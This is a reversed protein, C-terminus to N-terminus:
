FRIGQEACWQLSRRMGEELAVTPAYGLERCARDIRCAITKGLESLVHLRQEYLGFAQVARDAWTAASGVFAPLRIRRKAVRVGFESAMLREVTDVIRNMAYPERDAIWYAGGAAAESRACLLLGQCLNDVYVMSRLNEGDGVIPVRGQAIMRFFETQRAPQPPGYFWPPRVVVTELAGRAAFEGVVAEVARKSRGYAMYPHYPSCEDFRHERSPNTGFPSNSSVVVARRVGANEAAELLRRTGEVNVAFLERVRRRPHVLGACHFLTADRAGDFLAALAAPDLLSGRAIEVRNAVDALAAADDDPLVLCRIPRSGDPARLSPVDALGCALARVLRTGLWGTAGTVVAPRASM